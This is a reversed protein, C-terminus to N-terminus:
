SLVVKDGVVKVPVATLGKNAPPNRVDGTAPDFQSGHSPCTISGAAPPHVTTGQHPCTPDFAKIEGQSPRVLLLQGGGPRDVLTGGGVPVDALAALSGGPQPPTRGGSTPGGSAPLNSGGCAAALAGPAVLAVALGCLVQRRSPAPDDFAV